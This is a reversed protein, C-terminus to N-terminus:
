LITWTRLTVTGLYQEDLEVGLGPGKNPRVVGSKMEFPNSVIDRRYYRSNPSTDGPLDVEEQAALAVNLARGVGTELMGGVWASAEKRRALRAVELAVSLGGLRGPKLNIVRAAGKDLVEEADALSGVSEDLCIPTSIVKALRSHAEVEGFGLPQEIYQLEFADLDKLLGLDRKLSFCGNADACLPARPFRDRLARLSPKASKPDVKVKIRRYGEDLAAGVASVLESPPAMGLAIGAEAMGKSRGLLEDLPKAKSKALYDWLLAEVAAKAMQNGKSAKASELFEGPGVPGERLYGALTGRIARLATENDEGTQSVSDGTVCESYATIGEHSLELILARRWTVTERSNTFPSLLPLGVLRAALRM